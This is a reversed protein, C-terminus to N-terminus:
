AALIRRARRIAARVQTPATGGVHSRSAVSGELSLVRYVDKGIAASFRRLEDLSLQELRRRSTEAFRV